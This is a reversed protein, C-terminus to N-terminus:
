KKNLLKDVKRYKYIRYNGDYNKDNNNSYYESEELLKAEKFLLKILPFLECYANNKSIGIVRFELLDTFTKTNGKMMKLISKNISDKEYGLEISKEDLIKLEENMLLEFQSENVKKNKRESNKRRLRNSYDLFITNTENKNYKIGLGFSEVFEIKFKLRIHEISAFLFNYPIFVLGDINLLRKIEKEIDEISIIRNLMNSKFGLEKLKNNVNIDDYFFMMFDLFPLFQLIFTSVEENSPNKVLKDFKTILFTNKLFFLNQYLEDLYNEFNANNSNKNEQSKIIM